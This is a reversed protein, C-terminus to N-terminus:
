CGADGDDAEWHAAAVGAARSQVQLRYVAAYAGGLAMLQEHTGREVVEGHDLYLIQDAHEVSTLDHAVIITTRNETLRRLADTVSRQNEEDLGTTPEDLLTVPADRIAARAIALRQRQGGSLTAGREGLVTDYGDPLQVIFEHANALRAAAEIQEQSAGLAGHAINERVTVGFLVSGQLVVAIQSRLSALTVDRVDWGDIRVRGDSPDHLRLLLSLASSKGAGSPGVVAVVEGPRAHLSVDRLVPRGPVYGFTVHEFAIEGRFPPAEVAHKADAIEPERDLLDVIREGSASAQAIRGTYKALDRMPKFATKLYLMFVVLEGPTLTGERVQRAGFLLVLATGVATLLDVKRELGAALRKARVGERLSAVNQSAFRKELTEELGLAQVVKIAGLSEAAVSAMEGERKRQRRAATRIGGSRRVFTPSLLPLVIVAVLGLEPNIWIMVGVMGLLTATNVVLPLAATVAVEQLRGVDGTLRTILDGTRASHHFGLSLRQVHRYLDARVKTLVRNGALALGITSLYSALARLGALVVVAVACGILLTGESAGALWAPLDGKPKEPLVEDLVIGIPWPELLRMGVEAVILLASGALLRRQARVEPGFRRFFAALRLLSAPLSRLGTM